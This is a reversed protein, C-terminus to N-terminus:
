EVEELTIKRVDKNSDYVYMVNNLFDLVTANKYPPRNVVDFNEREVVGRSVLVASPLCNPGPKSVHYVSGAEDRVTVYHGPYKRLMDRGDVFRTDIVAHPIDPIKSLDLECFVKTM